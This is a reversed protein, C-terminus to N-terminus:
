PPTPITYRLKEERVIRGAWYVSSGDPDIADKEGQAFSYIEMVSSVPVGYAVAHCQSWNDRFSEDPNAYRFLGSEARNDDFKIRYGATLEVISEYRQTKGDRKLLFCRVGDRAFANRLADNKLGLGITKAEVIADSM